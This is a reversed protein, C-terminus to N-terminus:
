QAVSCWLKTSAMRILVKDILSTIPQGFAKGNYPKKKEEGFLKKAELLEVQTQPIADPLLTQEELIDLLELKVILRDRDSLTRRKQQWKLDKEYELIVMNFQALEDKICGTSCGHSSSWSKKLAYYEDTYGEAMEQLEAVYNDLANNGKGITLHLVPTIYRQLPTAEFVPVGRVSCVAQADKKNINNNEVRQAHELL